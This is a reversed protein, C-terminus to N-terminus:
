PHAGLNREMLRHKALVQRILRKDQPRLRRVGLYHKIFAMRQTWSIRERPASYSLQALDKVLWRQRFRHRHEVRQLDILNVKFRGTEPEAIFFHCCYLDRHNYGLKHFKAAVAAVDRILQSLAPDRRTSRETQRVAFRKRLFHDLQTYGVLEETLVFSELLGDPNLKEGYAILRMAAIGARSLRAVNRAEIRGATQGPGTGIKARLWAGATRVHHRKLYAARPEPHPAHLELRWNERDSLSRLLHGDSTTMMSEFTSLGQADLASRFHHDIWMRGTEVSELSQVGRHEETDSERIEWIKRLTLLKEVRRAVEALVETGLDELEAASLYGDFIAERDRQDALRRPLTAVLAALDETRWPLSLVEQRSSRQFDLFSFEWSPQEGHVHIHSTYLDPQNVGAAHLRAIESGLRSFFADRTARDSGSLLEKLFAGLPLSGSLEELVLCSRPRTAGQQLCAIPRPCGIGAAALTRLTEFEGRALTWFGHGAATHRALDKWRPRHERKIFLVKGGTADALRLRITDRGRHVPQMVQGDRRSLVAALDNLRHQGVFGHYAPDIWHFDFM